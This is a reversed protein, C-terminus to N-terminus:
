DTGERQKEQLFEYWDEHDPIDKLQMSTGDSGATSIKVSGLGFRREIFSQTRQLNVINDFDVSKIRTSFVGTESEIRDGYVRYEMNDIKQKALCVSVFGALVPLGIAIGAAILLDQIMVIAVIALFIALFLSQTLSGLMNEVFVAQPEPEIVEEPRQTTMSM